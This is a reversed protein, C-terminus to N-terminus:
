FPCRLSRGSSPAVLGLNKCDPRWRRTSHIWFYLPLWVVPFSSATRNDPPYRVSLSHSGLANPRPATCYCGSVTGSIRSGGTNTNPARVKTPRSEEIRCLAVSVIWHAASWFCWPTTTESRLSWSDSAFWGYLCWVPYCGLWCLQHPATHRSFRLSRAQQIWWLPGVISQWIRCALTHLEPFSLLDRNCSWIRCKWDPSETTWDTCQFINTRQGPCVLSRTSYHRTRNTM